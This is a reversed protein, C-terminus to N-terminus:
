RLLLLHCLDCCVLQSKTIHCDSALSGVMSLGGLVRLAPVWAIRWLGRIKMLIRLNKVGAKPTPCVLWFLLWSFIYTPRVKQVSIPESCLVFFCFSFRHFFPFVLSIICMTSTHFLIAFKSILYSFHFFICYRCARWFVACGDVADGTRMQSMYSDKFNIISCSFFAGGCLFSSFCKCRFIKM